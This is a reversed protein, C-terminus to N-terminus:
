SSIEADRDLFQQVSALIRQDSIFIVNDTLPGGDESFFFLDRFSNPIVIHPVEQLALQILKDANNRSFAERFLSIRVLLM